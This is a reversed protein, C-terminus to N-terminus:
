EADLVVPKRIDKQEPTLDGLYAYGLLGIFGLILLIVLLKAIRLM